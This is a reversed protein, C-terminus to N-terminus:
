IPGTLNEQRAEVGVSGDVLGAQMLFDATEGTAAAGLALDADVGVAAGAELVDDADEVEAGELAQAVDTKVRTRFCSASM